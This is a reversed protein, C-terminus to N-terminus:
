QPQWISTDKVVYRAIWSDISHTYPVHSKYDARVPSGSVLRHSPDPLRTKYKAMTHWPNDMRTNSLTCKIM